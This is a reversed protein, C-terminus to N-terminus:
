IYARKFERYDRLKKINSPSRLKQLARVQVQRIYEKTVNKSNGISELTEPDEGNFGFRRIIIERQIPSLTDMVDMISDHLSNELAIDEVTKDDPIANYLFLDDSEDSVSTELSLYETTCWKLAADVQALSLDLKNCLEDRTPLRGHEKLFRDNIKSIRGINNVVNTPLKVLRNAHIYKIIRQKIWFTAYTSFRVGLECNYSKIACLLGVNGEQIIDNFDINKATYHKAISIVLRLNHKVLEERAVDDGEKIRKVLAYEEENTLVPCNGIDDRYQMYIESGPLDALRM